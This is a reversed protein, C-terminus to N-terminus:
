RILQLAQKYINAKRSDIIGFIGIRLLAGLKLFLELFILQGPYHKKYFTLLGNYEGLVATKFGEKSSGGKSHVIKALPTFLIKASTKKLRFCLDVEEGYMFISEDFGGTKELLKKPLLLFAGTVWDVEHNSTYFNPDSQQYPKIIKKVLPLDDIFTMQLFIRDLSPFFGASPQITLDDNLLQCGIVQDIKENEIFYFIKDIAHDNIQTDSNLFLIWEGKAIKVAQNNANGFGFNEKNKIIKVQTFEKHLMDISDDKSANDVVIIEFQTKKTQSYISRLCKNLLEKTNFNVIIISLNM